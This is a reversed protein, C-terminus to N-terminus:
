IRGDAAQRLKKIACALQKLKTTIDADDDARTISVWGLGRRRNEGLGTVTRATAELIAIHDAETLGSDDGIQPILDTQEITFIGTLGQEGFENVQVIAGDVVTGTDADIRIRSRSNSTPQQPFQLDSWSWPSPLTPGTPEALDGKQARGGFVARAKPWLTPATLGLDRAADLMLGKLSSGPVIEKQDVAYATHFTVKFELKIM